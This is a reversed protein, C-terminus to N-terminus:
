EVEIEVKIAGLADETDEAGNKLLFYEVTHSQNELSMGTM